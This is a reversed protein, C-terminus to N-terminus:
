QFLGAFGKTGALRQSAPGAQSASPDHGRLAIQLIRILIAAGSLVRFAEQGVGVGLYSCQFRQEAFAGMGMRPRSHGAPFEQRPCPPRLEEGRCRCGVNVPIFLGGACPLVPAVLEEECAMQEQGRTSESWCEPVPLRSFVGPWFWLWVISCEAATM